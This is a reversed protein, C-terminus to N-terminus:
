FYGDERGFNYERNTLINEFFAPGNGVAEFPIGSSTPYGRHHSGRWLTRTPLGSQSAESEERLRQWYMQIRDAEKKPNVRLRLTTRMAKAEKEEQVRKMEDEPTLTAEFAKVKQQKGRNGSPKAQVKREKGEPVQMLPDHIAKERGNKGQTSNEKVKKARGVHCAEIMDEAEKM